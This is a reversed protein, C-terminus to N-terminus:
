RVRAIAEEERTARVSYVKSRISCDGLHEVYNAGVRPPEGGFTIASKCADPNDELDAIRGYFGVPSRYM